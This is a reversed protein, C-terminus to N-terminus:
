NQAVMFNVFDEVATKGNAAKGTETINAPNNTPRFGRAAPPLEMVQAAKEAESMAKQAVTKWQEVQAQVNAIQAQLQSIADTAEKQSRAEMMGTMKQMYGDMKEMYGKMASEVAKTVIGPMDDGDEMDPKKSAAEKAAVEEAEKKALAYELLADANMGALEEQTREKFALGVTDAAKETNAAATLISMAIDHGLLEKLAEVKRNDMQNDEEIVMLRTLTNAVFRRPVLSREKRRITHFVGSRPEDPPHAFAISVGYQVAREKVRQAIQPTNFTGSELLMKGHMANFDCKGIDAGNIHWFRLPGYDGDTDAREVDNQLAKLSVFERDRDQYSNSSVSVWRDIGRKDKYVLFTAKETEGGPTPVGMSRYMRRLKMLAKARNPGQYKNGRYGGTLAAWAAGMLRRDPKGDNGMVRLHWTSPNQDDEAVLYHGAAHQGDGETKMVAAKIKGDMGPASLLGGPGHAPIGTPTSGAEKESMIGRAWDIGASGGWGLWAVHGNDRWPEDKYEPAIAANQRHRAFQSMRSVTERSLPKGSALQRARAWGVPTMGSVADGHTRRWELVKRANSQATQPPTYTDM